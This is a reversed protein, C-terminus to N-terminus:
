GLWSKFSTWFNKKIADAATALEAVPPACLYTRGSLQQVQYAPFVAPLGFAQPSLGFLLVRRSELQTLLSPGDAPSLQAWNVIAIDALGIGARDMIKTLVELDGDAIFRSAPDNNVLLIGKGNQGLYSPPAAQQETALTAVPAVKPMAQPPAESQLEVLTKEYLQALQNSSLQIDNLDM